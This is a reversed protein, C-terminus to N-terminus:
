LADFAIVAEELNTSSVIQVTSFRTILDMCHLMLVEELYFHDVCLAKNFRKSLSSISVKRDLQSPATFQCASCNEILDGVYKPVANNWMKNRELLLQYDTFTANGCVHKHVKDVIPKLESWKANCTVNGNLCSLM